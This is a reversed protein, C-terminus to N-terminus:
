AGGSTAAVDRKLASVTHELTAVKLRLERLERASAAVEAYLADDGDHVGGPTAGAWVGGEGTLTTALFYAAAVSVGLSFALLKAWLSSTPPEADAAAAAAQSAHQEAAPAPTSAPLSATALSRCLAGVAAPSPRVASVCGSPRTNRAAVRLSAAFARNMAHHAFVVRVHLLLCRAWM